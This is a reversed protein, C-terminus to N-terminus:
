RDRNQRQWAEYAELWEDRKVDFVWTDLYKGRRPGDLRLLGAPQYGQRRLAAASRENSGFVYSQLIHLQLYDFCYALLLHKSETGYGKGRWEGPAFHSYTEATGNVYDIGFLGVWGILADNQILCSQLTLSEPISVDANEEISSRFMIPSQLFRGFDDIWDDTEVAYHHAMTDADDPEEARLYVREGVIIPNRM